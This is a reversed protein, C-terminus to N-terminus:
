MSDGNTMIWGRIPEIPFEVAVHSLGRLVCHLIISFRPATAGPQFEGVPHGHLSPYRRSSSPRNTLSKGSCAAVDHEGMSSIKLRGFLNYTPDLRLPAASFEMLETSTVGCRQLSKYLLDDRLMSLNM